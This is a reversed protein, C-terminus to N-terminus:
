FNQWYNRNETSNEKEDPKIKLVPNAFWSNGKKDKQLHVTKLQEASNITLVCDDGTLFYELWHQLNNKLVMNNVAIIEDGAFLGAKWAPSYPFVLTVKSFAGSEAVKFGFHQESVLSSNEKTLEIGLYNLCERLPVEFYNPTYVYDRFFTSFDEGSVENVLDIINEETYGVEKKGYREYLLICVDRLSKKNQTAQMIKVDLMLAILSGEDYINTKRYPAGPVYGDLWTEWSSHAV